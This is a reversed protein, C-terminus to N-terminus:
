FANLYGAIYNEQGSTRELIWGVAAVITIAAMGVRLWKYPKWKSLLLIPFFCLMILLQMVEIGLNFGFISLLKTGLSLELGLLSNSFALGHILGFGAAILIEKRFFLPKIVHIASILISLAILIEIFQSNFEFLQLSGLMLTISHGVTFALSIKLFRTLTYKWGQYGSWNKGLTTLPAILLLTLLFMIHDLGEQIHKMGYQMMGAMGQWWSGQELAIQVPIVTGSSVDTRIVGLSQAATTTTEQVGNTWDYDLFVLIKHTVLQHIVVDYDFTFQHLFQQHPPTLVFHVIAEKYDGVLPAYEKAVELKEIRTFWREGESEAQIHQTFYKRFIANDIHEVSELGLIAELEILPIRAVGTVSRDLVSLHVMSNPMPHASVQWFIPLMIAIFLISRKLM